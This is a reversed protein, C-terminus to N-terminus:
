PNVPLATPAYPALSAKPIVATFKANIADIVDKSTPAISPGFCNALVGQEDVLYKTFNWSPPENNWGNETLDTLWKFVSNQQRSKIVISKKM